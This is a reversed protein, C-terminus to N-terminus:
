RRQRGRHHALLAFHGRRGRGILFTLTALMLALASSLALVSINDASVTFPEQGVGGIVNASPLLAPAERQLSYGSWPSPVALLAASGTEQTSPQGDAAAPLVLWLFGLALFAVLAGLTGWVRVGHPGRIGSM